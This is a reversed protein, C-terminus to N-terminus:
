AFVEADQLRKGVRDKAALVPEGALPWQIGIADDDARCQHTRHLLAECFGSFRRRLRGLGHMCQDRFNSM